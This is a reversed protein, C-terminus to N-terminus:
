CRGDTGCSFDVILTLQCWTCVRTSWVVSFPVRQRNMKEANAEKRTAKVFIPLPRARLYRNRLHVDDSISRRMDAIRTQLVSAALLVPSPLAVLVLSQWSFSSTGSLTCVRTSWVVSFPERPGWQKGELCWFTLRPIAILLWVHM